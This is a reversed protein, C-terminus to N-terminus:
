IKSKICYYMKLQITCIAFCCCCNLWWCCGRLWWWCLSWGAYGICNVNMWWTSCTDFLHGGCTCYTVVINVICVRWTKTEGVDFTHEITDNSTFSVGRWNDSLRLPVNETVFACTCATAGHAYYCLTLCMHKSLLFTASMTHACKSASCDRIWWSSWSLLADANQM